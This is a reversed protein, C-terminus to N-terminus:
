NDNTQLTLLASEYPLGSVECYIELEAARRAIAGQKYESSKEESDLADVMARFDVHIGAWLFAHQIDRSSYLIDHGKPHRVIARLVRLLAWHAATPQQKMDIELFSLPAPIL